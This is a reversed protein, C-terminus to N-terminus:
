KGTGQGQGGTLGHQAELDRCEGIFADVQDVLDFFADAMLRRTTRMTELWEDETAGAAVANLVARCLLEDQANAVARLAQTSRSPETM